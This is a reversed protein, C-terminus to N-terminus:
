CARLNNRANEHGQDAALRFWRIAEAKDEMVGIGNEYMFGLEYQADPDGQEAVERIKEVEKLRM